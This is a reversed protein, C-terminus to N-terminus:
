SGLTSCLSTGLRLEHSGTRGLRRKGWFCLFIAVPYSDSGSDFLPGFTCRLVTLLMCYNSKKAPSARTRKKFPCSAM